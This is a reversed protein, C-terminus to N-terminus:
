GQSEAKLDPFNISLASASSAAELNLTIGEDRFLMMAIFIGLDENGSKLIDSYSSADNLRKLFNESLKGDQISFLIKLNSNGATIKITLGKIKQLELEEVLAQLFWGLATLSDKTLSPISPPEDVAILETQVNHKFYLNTQLYILEQKLYEHIGQLSIINENQDLTKASTARILANIRDHEDEMRKLRSILRGATNSDWNPEDRLSFYAMEIDLGLNQMPGNLNHILGGVLKGISAQKYVKILDDKSIQVMM